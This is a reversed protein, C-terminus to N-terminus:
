NVLLCPIKDLEASIIHIEPRHSPQKCWSRTLLQKVSEVLGTEALKPRMSGHGVNEILQMLNLDEYPEEEVLIEYMVLSLSYVDTMLLQSMSLAKGQLVEPAAYRPTGEAATRSSSSQACNKITSLGFDCLKAVNNNDLLVNESKVDRHAITPKQPSECPTHLYKLASVIELIIKRKGGNTFEVEEIFIAHYLTKPLYEMVLGIKNRDLVVGFLKVINLHLLSAFVEIEQVLQHQRTKSLMKQAKFKKFAIPTGKWEGAFVEGFGGEGIKNKNDITLEEYPIIDEKHKVLRFHDTSPIIGSDRWSEEVENRQLKYQAREVPQYYPDNFDLQKLMEKIEELKQDMLLQQEMIAKRGRPPIPKGVRKKRRNYANDVYFSQAHEMTTTTSLGGPLTATIAGNKHQVCTGKRMGARGLKRNLYNDVYCEASSLSAAESPITVSGGKHQIHSGKPKGVRGMERNSANDVYVNSSTVGPAPSGGSSLTTTGDKHVVHSGMEEGARGVSRNYSNDAYTGSASTSSVGGSSRGSASSSHVATGHAMGVRGLSRNMANNAYTKPM